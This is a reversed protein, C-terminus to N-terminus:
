MYFAFSEYLTKLRLKPDNQYLHWLQERMIEEVKLMQADVAVNTWGSTPIYYYTNIELNFPDDVFVSYSIMYRSEDLHYQCQYLQQGYIPDSVSYWLANTLGVREELEAGYREYGIVRHTIHCYDYAVIFGDDTLGGGTFACDKPYVGEKYYRELINL